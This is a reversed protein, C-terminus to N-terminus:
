YDGLVCNKLDQFICFSVKFIETTIWRTLQLENVQQQPTPETLKREAKRKKFYEPPVYGDRLMEVMEFNVEVEQPDEGREDYRAASTSPLSTKSNRSSFPLGGRITFSSLGLLYLTLFFLTIVSEFDHPCKSCKFGLSLGYAGACSGCLLGEYGERCSVQSYEMLMSQNFGCDHLNDTFERLQNQRDGYSCAEDTLCEKVNVHCPSKHWYGDKPVIFRSECTADSPCPTCGGPQEPNFNFSVADCKQCLEGGVTPEEGVQCGRIQVVIEASPLTVTNPSIRLTYNGPPKFGVINSFNGVGGTINSTIIGQFFGDPSVMTVELRHPNTVMPGNGYADLVTIFIVPLQVGSAVNQLIFGSHIDGIIQGEEEPDTSFSLVRGFTGVTDGPADSTVQNRMWSNCLGMPDMTELASVGEADLFTTQLRQPICSILVGEPDTTLVAAGSQGASNDQFVSNLLLVRTCTTKRANCDITVNQPRM